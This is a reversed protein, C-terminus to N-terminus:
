SARTVQLYFLGFIAQPVGSPHAMMSWTANFKLKRHLLMGKIPAWFSIPTQQLTFFSVWIRWSLMVRLLVSAICMSMGEQSEKPLKSDYGLCVMHFEYEDPLIRDTIEKVAVEAGGM